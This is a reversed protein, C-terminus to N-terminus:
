RREGLAKLTLFKVSVVVKAKTGHQETTEHHDGERNTDDDQDYKSHSPEAAVSRGLVLARCATRSREFDQLFAIGSALDIVVLEFSTLLQQGLSGLAVTSSGFRRASM